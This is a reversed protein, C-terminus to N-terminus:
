QESHGERALHPHCTAGPQGIRLKNPPIPILLGEFNQELGLTSEPDKSDSGLGLFFVRYWILVKFMRGTLQTVMLILSLPSRMIICLDAFLGYRGRPSLM